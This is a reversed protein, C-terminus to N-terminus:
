ASLRANERLKERWKEDFGYEDLFGTISGFKTRLYNMGHKMVHPHARLFIEPDVDRQKLGAVMAKKDNLDKYAADSLVYDAVIEEDTAGLVHLTLMAIIGTRDKGATCYVGLPHNEAEAIVKMVAIIEKASYDIVLENLLGLGGDNIKDLFISRVKSNARRSLASLGLLMIAQARTRKRLRFFIGKKILSESMLSVFYRRKNNADVAGDPVFEGRKKNYRYNQFGEYVKSNLHEDEALEAPSRLDIWTKIGMANIAKSIDADSAKSVCGTRFIKSPTVQVTKTATCIDRMNKIDDFQINISAATDGSAVETTAFLVSPRVHVMRAMPIRSSVLGSVRCSALMIAIVAFM